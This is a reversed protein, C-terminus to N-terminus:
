VKSYQLMKGQIDNSDDMKSIMQSMYKEMVGAVMDKDDSGLKDIMVDLKSSLLTMLAVESTKNNGITDNDETSTKGMKALVSNSDLPVIMEPGHLEALYGSSPGMAMGGESASIMEVHPPDNRKYPRGLGFRALFPDLAERDTSIDLAAGEGHKSGRGSGAVSYERGRYNIKTDNKPRAPTHIGRERLVRGRVWLEAQKEDGRYASNVTVTKGFADAATYFRSLLEDNVGSLDANPGVRVNDPKNSILRNPDGDGQAGAEAPGGSGPGQAGAEAPGGASEGSAGALSGRPGRSAIAALQEQAAAMERDIRGRDIMNYWRTEGREAELASMQSQLETLRLQDESAERQARANALAREAAEEQEKNNDRRAQILLAQQEAEENYLTVVENRLDRERELEEIRAPDGEQNRLEEIQRDIDLVRRSAVAQKETFEFAERRSNVEAEYQALLEPRVGARRANALMEEASSLQNARDVLAEQIEAQKELKEVLETNGDRRANLLELEINLAAVRYGDGEELAQGIEQTLRLEAEKAAIQEDSAGQMRMLELEANLNVLDEKVSEVTISSGILDGVAGGFMKGAQSGAWAGLGAGILGGVAAGIPGALAGIAAGKAGGALAGALGGAGQGVTRATSARRASRAEEESILGTQQRREIDASRERGESIADHVALGGAIAGGGLPVALRGLTRAATGVGARSAGRRLLRSMGRGRGGGMGSLASMGLAAAATLAAVTLAQIAITGKDFGNTLPNMSDLFRDAATRINRETDILAAAVDRQTDRGQEMANTVGAEADARQQAADDTIRLVAQAGSTTLGVLRAQEEGMFQSSTEMRVAANIQADAMQQVTEDILRQRAEKRENEDTIDALKDFREKLSSAQIGLNALGRTSEDFSGTRILRGLQQAQETTLRSGFQGIVHTTDESLRVIRDRELQLQAKREANEENRIQEDLQRIKGRRALENAQQEFTLTAQQQEQQLQEVSKGTLEGLVRLNKAYDLSRRNLQEQSMNQSLLQIGGARQLELYGVQVEQLEELSYGIRFFEREAENAAKFMGMLQTTGESVGGSLGVLSQTSKAIIPVLKQLDESTYGADRALDTLSDSTQDVNAGFRKMQTVFQNQADAQETFMQAVKSIAKVAGGIAIGLPGFAKGLQFAADGASDIAKNYSSFKGEGALLADTFKLAASGASTLGQKLHQSAKELELHAQRTAQVAKSEGERFTSNKKIAEGEKTIANGQTDVAGSLQGMRMALPGLSANLADLNGMLERMVEPDYDAM